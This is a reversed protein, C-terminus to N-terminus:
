YDTYVNQDKDIEIKNAIELYVLVTISHNVVNSLVIDLSLSSQSLPQNGMMFNPSLNFGYVCFGSQFEDYDFCLDENKHMYQCAQLLGMYALSYNNQGYNLKLKEFSM